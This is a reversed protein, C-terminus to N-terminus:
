ANILLLLKKKATTQKTRDIPFKVLPTIRYFRPICNLDLALASEIQRDIIDVFAPTIAETTDM